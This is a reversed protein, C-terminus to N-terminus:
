FGEHENAFIYFFISFCPFNPYFFSYFLLWDGCCATGGGQGEGLPLPTTHTIGKYILSLSETIRLCPTEQVEERERAFLPSTPSNKNDEAMSNVGRVYRALTGCVIHPANAGDCFM